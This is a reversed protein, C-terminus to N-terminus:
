QNHKLMEAKFFKGQTTPEFDWGTFMNPTWDPDFVWAVWSAGISDLYSIIRPGYTDDNNIVPVHAGHEGDHMWGLETAILPAHKTIFGWRKKWGKEMPEKKEKQPYPHSVYAINERDILDGKASSLDYAWNFGAVLLVVNEDYAQILDIMEINIAKWQKWNLSGFRGDGQTPENFLEYFAVTPVDKYRLAITQWFKLTESMSTDYMPHQYVGTRLNGISHWDIILYLDLANAWLVAEDLLKLYAKEGQGRWAIPHVPLRVINAGWAKVEKFYAKSWKGDRVLKDPDAINVGRFTVTNGSEDVFKNKLVSIASQKNQLQETDFGQPYPINWWGHADSKATDGALSSSSFCILALSIVSYLVAKYSMVKLLIDRLQLM